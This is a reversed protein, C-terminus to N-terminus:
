GAQIATFLNSGSEAPKFKKFLQIQLPFYKKRCAAEDSKDSCDNVHDCEANVKNVCDGNNCKFSFDSCIGPAVTLHLCNWFDFCM